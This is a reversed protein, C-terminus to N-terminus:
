KFKTLSVRLTRAAIQGWIHIKVDKTVVILADGGAAELYADAPVNTSGYPLRRYLMKKIQPHQESVLTEM